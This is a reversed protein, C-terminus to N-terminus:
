GTSYRSRRRAMCVLGGTGAILLWGAAPLPVVSVTATGLVIQGPPIEDEGSVFGGLPFDNIALSFRHEGVLNALFRLTGIVAPGTFGPLLADEIGIGNIETQTVDDAPVLERLEVGMGLSAPTFGVFSVGTGLTFNDFRVDVAGATVPPDSPGSFDMLVDLEFASFQAVTQTSPVLSITAAGAPEVCALGIALLRFL